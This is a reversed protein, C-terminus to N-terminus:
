WQVEIGLGFRDAHGSYVGTASPRDLGEEEPTQPLAQPRFLSKEINRELLFFHGYEFTVLLWPRVQWAAGIMIHIRSMDLSVPSVM